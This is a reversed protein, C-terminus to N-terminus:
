SFIQFNSWDIALVQELAPSYDSINNPKKMVYNAGANIYQQILSKPNYGSIMVVPIDKTTDSKKLIHLIEEGNVVPMRIDLFIIDPRQNPNRLAKLMLNGQVFICVTHGLSEAVEKFIYLDDIDDDLYFITKEAKM